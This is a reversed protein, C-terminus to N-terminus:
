RRFSDQSRVTYGKAKMEQYVRYYIFEPDMNDIHVGAFPPFESLAFEQDNAVLLFKGNFPIKGSELDKICGGDIVNSRDM